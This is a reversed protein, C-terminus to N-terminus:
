PQSVQVDVLSLMLLHMHKNVVAESLYQCDPPWVLYSSSLRVLLLDLIFDSGSLPTPNAM